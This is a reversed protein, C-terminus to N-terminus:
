PLRGSDDRWEHLSSLYSRRLAAQDFAQKSAVSLDKKSNSLLIKEQLAEPILFHQMAKRSALATSSCTFWQHLLAEKSSLRKSPDLVILQELLDSLFPSETARPLVIDLSKPTKPLFQLKGYDPLEHADQWNTKDPTGLVNFLIALQSM